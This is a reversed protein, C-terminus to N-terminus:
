QFNIKMYPILYPHLEIKKLTAPWSNFPCESSCDRREWSMQLDGRVCVLNGNLHQDTELSNTGHATM